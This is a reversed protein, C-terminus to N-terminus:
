RRAMPLKGRALGLKVSELKARQKDLSKLKADVMERVRSLAEDETLHWDNGHYCVPYGSIVERVMRGGGVDCLEVRAVRVGATLAYKTVWVDATKKNM